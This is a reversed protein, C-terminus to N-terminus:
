GSRKVSGRPRRRHTLGDRLDGVEPAHRRNLRQITKRSVQGTEAAQLINGNNHALLQRVYAKEFEVLYHRKAEKYPLEGMWSPLAGVTSEAGTRRAQDHLTLAEELIASLETAEWPKRVIAMARAGNVAAVALEENCNATIVIRPIMPFSARAKELLALGNIGPVRHEVALAAIEGSNDELIEWATRATSATLLPYLDGFTKRFSKLEQKEDDVYLVARM